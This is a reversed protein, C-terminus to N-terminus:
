VRKPRPNRRKVINQRVIFVILVIIIAEVATAFLFLHFFFRYVSTETKNVAVFESFEGTNENYKYFGGAGTEDVMYCIFVGDSNEFGDIETKQVHLTSATFGEPVKVDDPLDAVFIVKSSVISTGFPVYPIATLYTPNYVYFDPANEGDSVYVLVSEVGDKALVPVSYGNITKTTETFGTPLYYDTPFAVFTYIKGEYDLFGAGETMYDEQKSVHIYYAMHDIGNQATVEVSITNDGQKLNTNGYITVVSWLNSSTASVQVSSVDRNVYLSYDTVDPSFEPTLTYGSINLAVLTADSSKEATVIMSVSGNDITSEITNMSSDRMEGASDLTVKVNEATVTLIRFSISCLIVEEDSSFSNDEFDDGKIQAAEIDAEVSTNVASIYLKGLESSDVTYTFASLITPQSISLYDMKIADYSVEFAGFRTIHNMNTATINITVIDGPNNVRGPNVQSLSVVANEDANANKVAFSPSVFLSIQMVFIAVIISIATKINFINKSYQRHM